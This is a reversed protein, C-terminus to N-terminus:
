GEYLKGARSWYCDFRASTNLTFAMGNITRGELGIDSALVELRTWVGAPPLDGVRRRSITGTVGFPIIDAGWFASHKWTGDNWQLM